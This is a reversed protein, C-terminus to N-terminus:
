PTTLSAIGGVGFASELGGSGTYRAVRTTRTAADWGALAIGIGARAAMAQPHPMGAAEVDVM